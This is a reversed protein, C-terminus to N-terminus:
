QGSARDSNSSDDIMPQVSRRERMARLPSRIVRAINQFAGSKMWPKGKDFNGLQFRSGDTKEIVCGQSVRFVEVIGDAQFLAHLASTWESRFVRLPTRSGFPRGMLPSGVPVDVAIKNTGKAYRVRFGQDVVYLVPKLRNVQGSTDARYGIYMEHVVAESKFRHLVHGADDVRTVDLQGKAGQNTCRVGITWPIAITGALVDAIPASAFERLLRIREQDAPHSGAATTALGKGCTQQLWGVFREAAKREDGSQLLKRLGPHSIASIRGGRKIPELLETLVTTGPVRKLPTGSKTAGFPDLGHTAKRRRNWNFASLDIQCYGGGLDVEFYSIFEVPEVRPLGLLESPSAARVKEFWGQIDRVQGNWNVNELAAASPLACGLVIADIAHNRLDGAVKAAHKEYEPLMAARYLATHRGACFAIEVTGNTQGKIKGALYRALPRSSRQTTTIRVLDNALMGLLREGQGASAPRQLLNLLGKKITHYVHPVRLGSLYDSYAQYATSSITMAAAAPSRAGKRSNCTTCAPVINFYSDFPFASAPMLHEVQDTATREGCYACLGAFEAALMERRSAFGLQPGSWYMDAAKSESLDQRAKFPGALVDFAVREVVVRDIRGGALPLVRAQVLRWLREFVIQQKRSVLDAATIETKNPIQRGALFYDVFATSHERCYRVRGGQPEQLLGSLQARYHESWNAKFTEAPEGPAEREVRHLLNKFVRAKRKNLPARAAKRPEADLAATPQYACAIAALEGIWHEVSRRLKAADLSVDFVPKLWVFLSQQLREAVAKDSRPVNHNCGQWNCKSPGRNEFRAPRLEAEKRCTENLHRSCAADACKQDAPAIVRAIEDRLAEFFRERHVHFATEDHEAERADYSYGRRGFFRVIQEAGVIGTLSQALRHLRRTHTKRTRRIRRVGARSEVLANLPKAEVVLTAAYLVRNHQPSSHQVLALGIFKSGFDVALTHRPGHSTTQM